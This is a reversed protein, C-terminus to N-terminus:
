RDRAPAELNLRLPLQGCVTTGEGVRSRVAVSGGLASVRDALSRLGVGFGPQSDFGVGDDRVQVNLWGGCSAIRVEASSARSHKLVNALAESILFYAAGEVEPALRVGHLGDVDLLVPVPSADCRQGVAEVLGGDTLVSPHIGQALARLDEMIARVDSQVTALLDDVGEVGRSRQRAIGIRALLAALQQQAGDHINREIRRRETDHAEVLRVALAASYLALGTHNALAGVLKADQDTLTGTDERPGCRVIGFRQDRYGVPVSLASDGSVRGVRATASGEIEVEVWRLRLGAGLTRALDSAVSGSDAAVGLAEGLGALMEPPTPRPGFVWRDAFAELRRRIPAFVLTTLVTLAVAVGVPLRSGAAVGLAVAVGGYLVTIALWLVGYVVSRRILLDIDFARHRLIAVGIASPLVGLTTAGFVLVGAEESVGLLPNLALLLTAALVLAAALLLWRLQRRVEESGRRGRTVLSAIAAAAAVLLGVFGLGGVVDVAPELAPGVGFPNDVGEHEHLPGPALLAGLVFLGTSAHALREVRRWAPGPLSGDPFRLPVHIALLVIGLVSLGSLWVLVSPWFRGDRAGLRDGVEGLGTLGFILASAALLMWGVPNSPRRTAILAGVSPLALVLIVIVREGPSLGRLAAQAAVGAVAM